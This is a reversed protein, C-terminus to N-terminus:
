QGAHISRRFKRRLKTVLTEVEELKFHRLMSFYAIGYLAAFILVRLVEHVPVFEGAFLLLGGLATCFWIAAQSRWKLLDGVRVDFFRIIRWLMYIREISYGFVMGVAPGMIAIEKFYRFFVFICVLNSGFMLLNGVLLDTTRNAARLPSALEISNLPIILSLIRFIPVADAYKDTFALPILVDAYWFLLLFVPIIVSSYAINGRKWLRLKDRQESAAQRVMDPFIADAVASRVIRVIPVKYSAIAYVALALVGLQTSIVIQGVYQHLHHLSSALGLPVIFGLQQGLLKRDVIFSLVRIRLSILLVIAVRLLEVCILAILIAEVSRTLWATGIVAGLRVITRLTSSYFVYKPQKTAIWYAELYTVNAFLFVYVILPLLFDFSTNARIQDGLMWLAVCALISAGFKLLNTHSVYHKTNEPHRPIFYLLNTTIAFAALSTVIMSYAIFERYQGFSAPELIRVLLIPSFFVLAFNTVRAFSLIV